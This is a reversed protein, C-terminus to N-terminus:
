NTSALYNNCAKAMDDQVMSGLEETVTQYAQQYEETRTVQDVTEKTADGILAKIQLLYRSAERPNVSTCANLIGKMRGFQRTDFSTDALSLTSSAMALVLVSVQMTKM